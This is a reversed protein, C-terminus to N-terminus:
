NRRVVSTVNDEPTRDILKNYPDIGGKKPEKSVVLDLTTVPQTIHVKKVLLPEGLKQGSIRDGFIGVDVYDAMPVDRTAGLSDGKLKKAKLVLHVAWNGDAQKTTTVTDAKNEYFTMEEFLDTLVYTLSDPTVQKFEALLDRATPYPPGKLAWKALFARLAANMSEEGIYDRLAYFALSGKQYHIYPQNEVYLLPVEKKRETGRGRLYGDLERRLFKQAAERGFRKEMITLASYEALGESFMTSGQGNGGIVQHAWWQHALEHATVFYALDVKDDGDEKRYLFGIGESYPITNPFAQAFGQYRPFEIIRYQHYLYPSFHKGFYDLGDKSAQLMSPLAFSHQPIHYIELKVGNYEERKVAYRASLTAYFDLIPKDMKYQFCRRGNETWERELYGPAISIQDPATCTTEDFSIWDADQTIYNNERVTPDDIKKMRPKPKLGNRQRVDDDSLENGEPYGFSPIYTSNMFSGNFAVDNNFADNPFGRPEFRGAFRVTLTEGHALPKGLGYLRVGNPTDDLLLRADRDFAISDIAVGSNSSAEFMNAPRPASAPLAVFVTDLPRSEQQVAKLTGHWSAARREPFYDHRLTVGVLRPRSLNAYPKYKVEWAKVKREANHVETYANLSNANYFFTGGLVLTLTAFAGVAVAGGARWRERAVRRRSAWGEDTGRVLVLLGLTSLTLCAALSYYSITLIRPLYPGWGAMDSYVYDPVRGVQYLRHDFGLNSLVPLLVWYAIVILHGVFKQNVLAHVGMALATISLAMPAGILLLNQLYISPQLNTYGDIIQAGMAFVIEVMMLLMIALFVAVLKSGFTVWIPVPTTDQLQDAKLQRDRWVLEGGYLTALLITFIFMQSMINPAIVSTVPWRASENPHSTFYIGVSQNVLAIASIALYPAERVISRLHFVVTSAFVRLWSAGDFRLAVAPVQVPASAAPAEVERTKRARAQQLRLRFVASVLAFLLLAVGIWLLRNQTMPGAFPILRGNKEVVSWYRVAVDVTTLAFPDVLSALKLKDLHGVITQTIQWALLLVIGTVYVAFLKRTLAGVAFLLASVFLLNPVAIMFFPQFFAAVEIPGLKDAPVWPMLTGLLLGVPLGFYIVLMITFAGALRGLLYGTKSLQTTFLLEETGLQGDRLVATGAVATTIVQGVATLIGMATALVFPANRHIQGTAIGLFADSATSFFAMLVFLAVFLLMLPRKFWYALEFKYITWFV